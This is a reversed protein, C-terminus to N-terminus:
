ALWQMEEQEVVWKGNKRVVTYIIGYAAVPNEYYGGSVKVGNKNSWKIKDIKFALGKGMQFESGPKIPPTHNKFRSLFESAPDGAPISIFYAQANRHRWSDFKQFEYRFVAECIDLEDTAWTPPRAQCAMLLVLTGVITLPVKKM